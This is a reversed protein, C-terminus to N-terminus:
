TELMVLLGALVGVVLPFMFAASLRLAAFRWGVAPVEFAIIRHVALLSWSTLFTMLQPTGAGAKSLLLAIPVAVVAGGPVLTGLGAAILLSQWGRDPSLWNAVADTPILQALFSAALLALLVRPLTVALQRLALTM